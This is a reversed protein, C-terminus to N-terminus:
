NWNNNSKRNQETRNEPLSRILNSQAVIWLKILFGFVFFEFHISSFRFSGLLM